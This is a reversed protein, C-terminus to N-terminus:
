RAKEYIIVNNSSTSCTTRLFTVKLWSFVWFYQSVDSHKVMMMHTLRAAFYFLCFQSMFQSQASIEVTKDVFLKLYEVGFCLICM